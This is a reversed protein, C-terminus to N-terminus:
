DDCSYIYTGMSVGVSLLVVYGILTLVVQNAYRELRPKKASPHHNANMRIKCEEGTNMVMGIAYTTNRLVSGRFLVENLTLPFTTGDSTTCRGNFDYLDRNPDECVFNATTSKLGSITNCSRFGQPAQKSKLNTEGDLAMTEIYAIGNEGDAYLLALDAPVADDRRLKVVDGVKMDRWRVKDWHLDDDEDTEPVEDVVEKPTKSKWPLVDPLSSLTRVLTAPNLETNVDRSKRRLVKAYQNNEINDNKHRKYDDYGEKFMTLLIFFTLPLITTYNGTTSM